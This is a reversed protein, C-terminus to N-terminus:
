DPQGAAADLSAHHVARGVRDLDGMVGTGVKM